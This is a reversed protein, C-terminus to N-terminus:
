NLMLANISIYVKQRTHGPNMEEGGAQLDIRNAVPTM